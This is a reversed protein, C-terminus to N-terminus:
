FRKRYREADRVKHAYGFTRDLFGVARLFSLVIAMMVAYLVSFIFVAIFAAAPTNIHLNGAAVFVVIFSVLLTAYHILLRVALGFRRLFFLHNAASIIFSFLLILLYQSVLISVRGGQGESKWVISAVISFILTIVTAFVCGGTFISRLHKM